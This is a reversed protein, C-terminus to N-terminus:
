FLFVISAASAIAPWLRPLTVMVFARLPSAGLMRAQEEVGPDMGEWFSGVTRIVVAVNFFVHAVLVAWVTHTLTVPGSDLGLRDFLALFAGGVVVTPLVFPVTTLARVLRRGRFRRRSALHAAPLAVVVTLVTSVAAQWLTFWAIGRFTDSAPLGTLYELGGGSLGLRLISVVPFVFFVGLFAAPLGVCFIRALHGRM